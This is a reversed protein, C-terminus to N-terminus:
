FLNVSNLALYKASSYSNSIKLRSSCNWSVLGITGMRLSIRPMMKMTVEM